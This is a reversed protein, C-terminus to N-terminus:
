RDGPQVSAIWPEFSHGWTVTVAYRPNADLAQARRGSLPGRTTSTGGIFPELLPRDARGVHLENPFIGSVYGVLRRTGDPRRFLEMGAVAPLILVRSRDVYRRRLAVPDNGVDILVLHSERPIAAVVADRMEDTAPTSLTRAEAYRQWAPGDFELAAYAHRPPQGQYMRLNADIPPLSCDFGLEALKAADFWTKGRQQAFPDTWALRLSMATNETERPLLRLERETLTMTAESSGSRNTWVHALGIANSVLVVLAAALPRRWM